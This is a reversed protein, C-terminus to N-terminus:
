DLFCCRGDFIETVLSALFAVIAKSVAYSITSNTSHIPSLLFPQNQTFSHTQLVSLDVTFDYPRGFGFPHLVLNEKPEAPTALYINMDLDPRALLCGCAIGLLMAPVM